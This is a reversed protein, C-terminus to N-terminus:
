GFFRPAVQRLRRAIAKHGNENPHFSEQKDTLHLDNIWDPADDNCAGHGLFTKVLGVFRFGRRDGVARRISGNLKIAARHIVPADTDDMAGCGDIHDREVLEPYGLVFVTANPAHNRIDAYTARLHARLQRLHSPVFANHIAQKCSTGKPEVCSRMVGSFGLDDGGVSITVLRTSVDLVGMQTARVKATTDGSCAVFDSVPSTLGHKLHGKLLSWYANASRRCAGGFYDNAGQGSAYSDGMAVWTRVPAPAKACVPMGNPLGAQWFRLADARVYGSGAGPFDIFVWQHGNHGQHCNTNTWADKHLVRGAPAGGPRDFVQAKRVARYQKARTWPQQFWVHNPGPKACTPSGALRGDTYTKMSSDPVWGVNHIHNWLVTGNETQNYLQCDIPWWQGKQVESQLDSRADLEVHAVVTREMHYEFRAKWPKLKHVHNPHGDGPDGGPPDGPSSAARAAPALAALLTLLLATVCWTKPAM